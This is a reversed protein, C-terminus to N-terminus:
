SLAEIATLGEGYSQVAEVLRGSDRLLDGLLRRTLALERIAGAGDYLEAAQRLHTEAKEAQRQARLIVGLQRHAEAALHPDCGAALRDLVSELLDRAADLRGRRREVEALECDVGDVDRSGGATALTARAASLEEWAEDLRDERVLMYGRAWHCRGIEARLDLQRFTEHAKALSAEAM